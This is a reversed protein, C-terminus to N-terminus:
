SKTSNVFNALTQTGFNKSIDLNYLDCQSIERFYHKKFTRVNSWCASKLITRLGIGRFMASSTSAHRCSHASYKGTDVGSLFLMDKIWRAITSPDPRHHSKSITVFFAKDGSLTNREELYEWTLKVPCLTPLEPYARFTMPETTAKPHTHKLAEDFTFTLEQDNIYMNDINFHSLMNVRNGSLLMFLTALRMSKDKFENAIFCSMFALVLNVDWIVMYKAVPPRNNFVGRLLQRVQYIDVHKLFPMLAPVYSRLTGWRLKKEYGEAMFNLFVITDQAMPDLGLRNCHALWKNKISTYKKRTSSRLANEVLMKSTM